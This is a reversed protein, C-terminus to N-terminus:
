WMSVELYAKTSQAPVNEDDILRQLATQVRRMALRECAAWNQRDKRHVDNARLGHVSVDYKEFVTHVHNMTATHNGLALVRCASDLSNMLKKGNHISDQSHIDRVAGACACYFYRAQTLTVCLQQWGCGCMCDRHLRGRVQHGSIRSMCSARRQLRTSTMQTGGTTRWSCNGAARMVMLHM